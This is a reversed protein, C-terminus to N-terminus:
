RLDKRKNLLPNRSSQHKYGAKRLIKMYDKESIKTIGGQLYIGWYRKNRVFTLKDILTRIEVANDWIKFNKIKVFDYISNGTQQLSSALEASGVIKRGNEGGQYFLVKDGVLLKM